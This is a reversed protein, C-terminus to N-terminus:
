LDPDTWAEFDVSEAEIGDRHESIANLFRLTPTPRGEPGPDVDSVSIGAVLGPTLGDVNVDCGAVDVPVEENSSM